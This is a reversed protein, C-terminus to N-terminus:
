PTVEESSFVLLHETKKASNIFHNCRTLNNGYSNSNYNIDFINDLTINFTCRNIKKNSPMNSNSPDSDMNNQFM